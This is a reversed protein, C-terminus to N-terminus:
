LNPCIALYGRRAFRLTAERYWEDWGPLHHALVVGAFPGDGLPRAYYANIEDGQHGSITITQAMIGEYQIPMWYGAFEVM